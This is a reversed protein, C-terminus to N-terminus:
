KREKQPQTAPNPVPKGHALNEFYKQIQGAFEPPLNSSLTLMIKERERQSLGLFADPGKSPNLESPENKAANDPKREGKGRKGM